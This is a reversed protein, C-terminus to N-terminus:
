GWAAAAIAAASRSAPSPASVARSIRSPRLSSALHLGGLNRRRRGAEDGRLVALFVRGFGRQPRLPEGFEDALLLRPGVEPDEDRRRLAAALREIVHQQDTRGAEALGRQRLDDGALEPDTEARGGARHDGLGAIERRQEGIELLAVHEEDVLDVPEIRRHLLDEIGGHLIELEVEDDALPRRRTRDLDVEGREGQDARRRPRAEEGIRQAVAEADRDPEIEVGRRFELQDDGAAGAHEADAHGGVAGVLDRGAGAARRADGAPQQPPQAIEGQDAIRRRDVALDGVAREDRRSTSAQPRSAM